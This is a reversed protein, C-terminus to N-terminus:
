KQLKYDEILSPNAFEGFFQKEAKARARVAEQLTPYTGLSIAEGEVYIDARYTFGKVKNSMRRVGKIGSISMPNAERNAANQSGDAKRLNEWRNDRGDGNIHDIGLKGLDEGTVMKWIIRHAYIKKGNLKVYWYQCPIKKHKFKKYYSTYLYGAIKGVNRGTAWRLEGTEKNYIFRERLLEADPLINTYM